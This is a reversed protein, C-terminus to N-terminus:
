QSAGYRNPNALAPSPLPQSCPEDRLVPSPWTTIGPPRTRRYWQLWGIWPVLEAASVADPNIELGLFNRPHISLDDIGEDGDSLERELAVVKAEPRKLLDLAVCLFNGTGRAPDLVRVAALLRQALALAHDEASAGGRLRGQRAAKTASGGNAPLLGAIACKV